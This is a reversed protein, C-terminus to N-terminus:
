KQHIESDSYIITELGDYDFITYHCNDPIELVELNAYHGGTDGAEVSAILEPNKRYADSVDYESEAAILKQQNESLHWGGYSKNIVIKM